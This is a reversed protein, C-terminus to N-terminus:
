EIFLVSLGKYLFYFPIIEQACLYLIFYLLLTKRPFFLIYIKRFILIIVFISYIVYFFCCIYVIKEIYFLLLTPLFLVFGSLCIISFYYDNWERLSERTFFINGVINYVLSKYLLFSLIIATSKLIFPFMRFSDEQLIGTQYVYYSFLNVSCLVITQLCLLLKIITENDIQEAFISERSSNGSLGKLMSQLLKPGTSAVHIFIFFCVLFLIFGWNQFHIRPSLPEETFTFVLFIYLASM